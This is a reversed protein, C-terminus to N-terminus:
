INKERLKRYSIGSCGWGMGNGNWKGLVRGIDLGDM